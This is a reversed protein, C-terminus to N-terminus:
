NIDSASKTVVKQKESERIERDIRERNERDITYYYVRKGLQKFGLIGNITRWCVFGCLLITLAGAQVEVILTSFQDFSM